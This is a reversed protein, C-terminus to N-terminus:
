GENVEDEPVRRVGDVRRVAGSPLLHVTLSADRRYPPHVLWPFRSYPPSQLSTVSPQHIFSPHHPGNGARKAREKVETWMM